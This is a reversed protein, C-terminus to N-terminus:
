PHFPELPVLMAFKHIFETHTHVARHPPGLSERKVGAVATISMEEWM